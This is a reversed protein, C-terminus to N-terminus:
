LTLCFNSKVRSCRPFFHPRPPSPTEPHTLHLCCLARWALLKEQSPCQPGCRELNKTSPVLRGWSSCPESRPPAAPPRKPSIWPHPQPTGEVGTSRGETAQPGPSVARAPAMEADRLGWGALTQAPLHCCHSDLVLTGGLSRSHAPQAQRVSECTSPAGHGREGGKGKSGGAETTGPLQLAGAM